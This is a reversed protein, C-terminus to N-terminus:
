FVMDTWESGLPFDGRKLVAMAFVFFGFYLPWIWFGRRLLFRGLNITRTAQLEKWLQKGILFGSLVFFLDVSIWGNRIFPLKSFHNEGGHVAYEGSLHGFIVLLMACSRLVDLAPITSRPPHVLDHFADM